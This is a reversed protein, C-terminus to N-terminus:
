PKKGVLLGVARVAALTRDDVAIRAEVPMKIFLYDEIYYEKLLAAVVRLKANEAGIAVIQEYLGGDPACIIETQAELTKQKDAVEAELRKIKEAAWEALEGLDPFTTTNHAKQWLADLKLTRDRQRSILAAHAIAGAELEQVRGALDGMANYCEELTLGGYTRESM